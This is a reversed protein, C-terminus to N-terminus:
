FVAPLFLPGFFGPMPLGGGRMRALGSLFRKKEVSTKGLMCKCLFLNEKLTFNEDKHSSLSFCSHYHVKKEEVEKQKKLNVNKGRLTESALPFLLCFRKRRTRKRERWLRWRLFFFYNCFISLPSTAHEVNAVMEFVNVFEFVFVNM